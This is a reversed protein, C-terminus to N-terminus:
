PENMIIELSGKSKFPSPNENEPSGISATNTTSPSTTSSSHDYNELSPLTCSSEIGKGNSFNCNSECSSVDVTMGTEKSNDLQRAMKKDVGSQVNARKKVSFTIGDPVVDDGILPTSVNTGERADNVGTLAGM